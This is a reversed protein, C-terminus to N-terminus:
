EVKVLEPRTLALESLQERILAEYQYRNAAYVELMQAPRYRAKGLHIRRAQGEGEIQYEYNLQQVARVMGRFLKENGGCTQGDVAEVLEGIVAHKAACPACMEGIGLVYRPSAVDAKCGKCHTSRLRSNRPRPARKRVSGRTGLSGDSVPGTSRASQEAGGDDQEATHNGTHDAAAPTLDHLDPHSSRNRAGRKSPARTPPSSTM